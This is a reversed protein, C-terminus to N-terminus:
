ILLHSLRVFIAVGGGPPALGLSRLSPEAADTGDTRHLLTAFLEPIITTLSEQGLAASEDKQTLVASPESCCSSEHDRDDKGPDTERDPFNSGGAESHCGEVTAPALAALECSSACLPAAPLIVLLFIGVVKRKASSTNIFGLSSM